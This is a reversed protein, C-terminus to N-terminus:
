CKYVHSSVFKGIFGILSSNQQISKVVPWVSRSIAALEPWKLNRTGGHAIWNRAIRLKREWVSKAGPSGTGQLGFESDFVLWLFCVAWGGRTHSPLSLVYLTSVRTYMMVSM